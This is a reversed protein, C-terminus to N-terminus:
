DWPHFSGAGRYRDRANGSLSGWQQNLWHNAYSSRQHGLYDKPQYSSQPILTQWPSGKSGVESESSRQGQLKRERCELEWPAVSTDDMEDM